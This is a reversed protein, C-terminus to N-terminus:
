LYDYKMRWDIFPMHNFGTVYPNMLLKMTEIQGTQTAKLVADETSTVVRSEILLKCMYFDHNEVSKVLVHDYNDSYNMEIIHNIIISACQINNNSVAIDLLMGYSSQDITNSEVFLKCIEPNNLKVALKIPLCNDHNPSVHKKGAIDEDM